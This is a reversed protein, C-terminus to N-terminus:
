NKQARHCDTPPLPLLGGGGILLLRVLAVFGAGVRALIAGCWQNWAEDEVREEDEDVWDQNRLSFCCKVCLKLLQWFNCTQNWFRRAFHRFSSLVFFPGPLGAWLAWGWVHLPSGIGGSSISLRSCCLLSFFSIRCTVVTEQELRKRFIVRSSLVTCPHPQLYFRGVVPHFLPVPGTSM